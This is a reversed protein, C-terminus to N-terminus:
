PVHSWIKRRHILSVTNQVIGFEQAIKSQPEGAGARGRIAVVDRETLKASPASEGRWQTGHRVKDLLNERRTAWRLNDARNDSRVGNGHAVEHRDPRLGHFAECVLRHVMVRQVVGDSCLSVFHYGHCHMIPKLVRGATVGRGGTLRKVRGLSSVAYDDTFSIPRWEEEGSM